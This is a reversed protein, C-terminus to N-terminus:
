SVQTSRSCSGRSPSASCFLISVFHYGFLCVLLVNAHVRLGLWESSRRTQGHMHRRIYKLLCYISGVCTPGATPTTGDRQGGRAEGESEERKSRRAQPNGGQLFVILSPAISWKVQALKLQRGTKSCPTTCVVVLGPSLAVRPEKFGRRALTGARYVAQRGFFHTRVGFQLPEQQKPKGGMSAM